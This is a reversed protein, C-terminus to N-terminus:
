QFIQLGGLKLRAKYKEPDPGYDRLHDIKLVEVRTLDSHPLILVRTHFTQKIAKYKSPNLYVSGVHGPQTLGWMSGKSMIFCM